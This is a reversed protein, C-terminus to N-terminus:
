QAGGEAVRRCWEVVVDLDPTQRADDSVWTHCIVGGRDIVFISRKALGVHGLWEDYRVGYSGCVRGDWDSLLPFEAGLSRAFALQSFTASVAVAAVQVDMAHLEPLKSGLQTM